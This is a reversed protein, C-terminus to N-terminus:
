DFALILSATTFVSIGIGVNAVSGGPTKVEGHLTVAKMASVDVMLLWLTSKLSGTM